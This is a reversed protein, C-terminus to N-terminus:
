GEGGFLVKQSPKAKKEEERGHIKLTKINGNFENVVQQIAFFMGARDAVLLAANMRQCDIDQCNEVAKLLERYGVAIGEKLYEEVKSDDVIWVAVRGGGELGCVKGAGPPIEVELLVPLIRKISELDRIKKREM